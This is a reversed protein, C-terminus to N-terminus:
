RGAQGPVSRPAESEGSGDASDDASVDVPVRAETRALLGLVALAVVLLPVGVEPRGAQFALSFGVPLWLIQLVVVPSRAWRAGSLLWPTVALLVVAGLLALGAGGVVGFLSKSEDVIGKVALFVALALLTLAEVVALVSAAALPRGATRLSGLVDWV